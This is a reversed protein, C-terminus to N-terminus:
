SKNQMCSQRCILIKLFPQATQLFSPCNQNGTSYKESNWVPWRNQFRSEVVILKQEEVWTMEVTERNFPLQLAPYFLKQELGTLYLSTTEV